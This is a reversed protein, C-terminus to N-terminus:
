KDYIKFTVNVPERGRPTDVNGSLNGYIYDGEIQTITLTVDEPKAQFTTEYGHVVNGEKKGKRMEFRIIPVEGLHIDNAALFVSEHYDGDVYYFGTHLNNKGSLPSDGGSPYQRTVSEITMEFEDPYDNDDFCLDIQGVDAYEEFDFEEINFFNVDTDKINVIIGYTANDRPCTELDVSFEGNPGFSYNEFKKSAIAFWKSITIGVALTGNSVPTGDCRYANGTVHTRITEFEVDDRLAVESDEDFMGLKQYSVDKL